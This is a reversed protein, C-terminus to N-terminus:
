VVCRDFSIFRLLTSFVKFINNKVYLRFEQHPMVNKSFELGNKLLLCFSEAAAAYVHFVSLTSCKLKVRSYAYHSCLSLRHYMTTHAHAVCVCSWWAVGVAIHNSLQSIFIRAYIFQLPSHFWITIHVHITHAERITASFDNGAFSLLFYVCISYHTAHCPVARCM